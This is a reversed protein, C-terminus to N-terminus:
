ELGHDWMKKEGLKLKMCGKRKSFCLRVIAIRGQGPALCGLAPALLNVSVGPSPLTLSWFMRSVHKHQLGSGLARSCGYM